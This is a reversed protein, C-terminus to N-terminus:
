NRERLQVQMGPRLRMLQDTVVREGSELGEDIVWRQDHWVGLEVPRREVTADDQVIYVSAGTPTRTIAEQPVLISQTRMAGLIEAHIAQGPVLVGDPNPVQARVTRTGTTPDVRVDIFDIRGRHPYSEGTPLDISVEYADNEPTVIEGRAVQEAYRLAEEESVSLRVNIPDMQSVLALLSDSGASVFTGVDKQSEGILGRIPSEIRTYSLSLDAQAIRAQSLQVQAEAVRVATLGEELEQSTAAGRQALQQFRDYQQQALEREAQAAALQANTIALEAEFTRQDIRYLLQGPEVVAGEEFAQEELFGDVRARIEVVQSAEVQGLYRPTLPITEGEVVVTSVVPTAQAQSEQVTPATESMEWYLYVGGLVVVLVVVALGRRMLHLLARRRSRQSSAERESETAM